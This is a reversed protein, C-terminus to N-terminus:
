QQKGRGSYLPMVYWPWCRQPCDSDRIIKIEEGRQERVAIPYTSYDHYGTTSFIAVVDSDKNDILPIQAAHGVTANGGLIETVGGDTTVNISGEQETKFGSWWLKGGRNVTEMESREPNIAHCWVTQGNFEFAPIHGYLDKRGLTCACNEFFVEGGPVTNFYFACAQTHMDRMYVTRTSDHRFMRLRGICENWSLLKEALLVDKSEGTIHFVAEGESERLEKGACIDCYMYHVHRVTPPIDIPKTILYHGPQFWIVPKGSSFAKAIAETDDHLGDGVAGFDNVCCWKELDTELAVDPLPAIKMGMGEAKEDFLTYTQRNCYEEICGDPLWEEFWNKEFAAAFGQTHINRLYLFGREYKIATYDTGDSELEANVLVVQCLPGETYLVPVNSHAKLGIIQVANNDVKIGYKQPYRLTINEFHACTLYTSVLIGYRFGEVTLDYVNCSSVIENKVWFGISGAYHEDSSRITVNRVAGSNNAFFIIGVAGPNGKGIDITINEFYNSMAVNSREGLMFNVVARQQGYEFGPCNDKLKIVTKEKSQGIMRICRNLEFGGASYHYMMNHLEQLTYSITDSVLYTGNPFYIMPIQDISCPFIALARDNLKRNENSLYTGNPSACLTEYVQQMEGIMGRLLDDLLMRLKQTCDEKGTPDLFYPAATVDLVAKSQPPFVVNEYYRMRRKGSYADLIM